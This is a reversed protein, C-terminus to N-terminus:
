DNWNEEGKLLKILKDTNKKDDNIELIEGNALHILITQGNFKFNYSKGVKEIMKGFLLSEDFTLNNYINFWWDGDKMYGYKELDSSDSKYAEIMSFFDSESFIAAQTGTALFTGKYVWEVVTVPMFQLTMLDPDMKVHFTLKHEKLFSLNVAEAGGGETEVAMAIPLIGSFVRPEEGDGQPLTIILRPREIGTKLSQPPLVFDYSVYEDIGDQSIVKKWGDKDNRLQLPSYSPINGLDLNGTLRDYSIPTSILDTIEVIADNLDLELTSEKNNDVSIEINVMSMQHHLSISVLNSNRNSLTVAGWLLDNTGNEDDFKGAKYPTSPSLPVIVEEMTAPVNDLIFTTSTGSSQDYGVHKWTLEEGEPSTTFGTGNVFNVTAIKYPNTEEGSPYTLFFKGEMIKGASKYNRTNVISSISSSIQLPSIEEQVFQDEGNRCSVFVSVFALFSVLCLTFFTKNKSTKM